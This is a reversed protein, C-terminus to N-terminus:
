IESVRIANKNWWLFVKLVGRHEPTIQFKLCRPVTTANIRVSCVPLQCLKISGVVINKCCCYYVGTRCKLKSEFRDLWEKDGRLLSKWIEPVSLSITFFATANDAHHLHYSMEEALSTMSCWFLGGEECNGMKVSGHRYQLSFLNVSRSVLDSRCSDSRSVTQPLHEM